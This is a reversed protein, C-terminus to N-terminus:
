VNEKIKDLRSRLSGDFVMDGIRIIIGGIINEDIEYVIKSAGRGKIFKEIKAITDKDAEMALTVTASVLKKM